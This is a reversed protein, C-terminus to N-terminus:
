NFAAKLFLAFVAKTVVPNIANCHLVMQIRGILLLAVEVDVVVFPLLSGFTLDKFFLDVPHGQIKLFMLAHLKVKPMLEALIEVQDVVM